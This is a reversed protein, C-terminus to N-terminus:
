ALQMHGVWVIVKKRRPKIGILASAKFLDKEVILLGNDHIPSPGITLLLANTTTRRAATIEVDINSCPSHEMFLNFLM